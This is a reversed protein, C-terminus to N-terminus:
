WQMKLLSVSKCRAKPRVSSRIGCTLAVAEVDVAILAQFMKGDVAVIDNVTKRADVVVLPCRRGGMSTKYGAAISTTKTFRPQFHRALIIARL